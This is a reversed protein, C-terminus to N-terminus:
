SSVVPPTSAAASKTDEYFRILAATMAFGLYFNAVLRLLNSILGLASGAAGGVVNSLGEALGIVLAVGLFILTFLALLGATKWWLGRTTRFSARLGAIPGLRDVVIAVFWLVLRIGVWVLGVIAAAALMFGIVGAVQSSAAGVKATVLAVIIMLVGVLAIGGMSLLSGVLLAGFSRNGSAVLDSLKAPQQRVLQTLYGIQGGNLWTSVAVVLLLCILLIPWAHGLWDLAIQQQEADATDRTASETVPTTALSGAPEEVVPPQVVAPTSAPAPTTVAAPATPAPTVTEPTAASPTVPAPAPTQPAESTTEKSAPKEETAQEAATATEEFSPLRAGPNFQPQTLLEKPVKTLSVLLVVLLGVVLWVGAVVVMGLWGKNAARFGEGVSRGIGPKM